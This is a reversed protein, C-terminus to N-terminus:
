ILSKYIHEFKKLTGIEEPSINEADAAEVKENQWIDNAEELSRQPEQSAVGLFKHWSMPRIEDPTTKLKPDSCM